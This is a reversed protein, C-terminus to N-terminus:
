LESLQPDLLQMAAAANCPQLLQMVHDVVVLLLLLSLSLLLSLQSGTHEM